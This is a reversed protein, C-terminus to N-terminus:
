EARGLSSAFKSYPSQTSTALLHSHHSSNTDKLHTHTPRTQSTRNSDLSGWRAPPSFCIPLAMGKGIWVVSWILFGSFSLFPVTSNSGIHKRKPPHHQIYVNGLYIHVYRYCGEFHAWFDFQLLTKKVSWIGTLFELGNATGPSWIFIYIYIYINILMHTHIHIHIYIYIYIVHNLM